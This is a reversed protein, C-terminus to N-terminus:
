TAARAMACRSSTRTTTRTSRPRSLWARPTTSAGPDKAKACLIAESNTRTLLGLRHSLNPLVSTDRMSHLLKQTNYTGAAFVVQEASFTRRNKRRRPSRGTHHAEVAYGGEALPRVVTATTLPHVEAGSKEALYLYNRDLTNKAGHRCGTMCSGCSICTRREPGAGGFFPDPVETGPATGPEGFLVGVQTPHVTDGVGMDEAVQRIVRDAETEQPNETVGLMRKAQAYYPALESRWDTIHAWQSDEYFPALPEYLTNAYNLSGGGVGQGPGPL